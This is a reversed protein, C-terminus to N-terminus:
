PKAELMPASLWNEAESQMATSAIYDAAFQEYGEILAERKLAAAAREVTVSFNPLDHDRQYSELFFLVEQTLSVHKRQPDNMTM